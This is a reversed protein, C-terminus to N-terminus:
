CTKCSSLLVVTLCGTLSLLVNQPHYSMTREM